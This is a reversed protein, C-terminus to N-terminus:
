LVPDNAQRGDWLRLIEVTRSEHQVRYFPDKFIVKFDM